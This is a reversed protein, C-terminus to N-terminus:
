LNFVITLTKFYAHTSYSRRELAVVPYGDITEPVTHNIISKGEYMYRTITAKGDELTYEYMNDASVYKESTPEANVTILPFTTILLAMTLVFALLKKKM